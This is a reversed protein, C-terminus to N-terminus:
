AGPYPPVVIVIEGIDTVVSFREFDDFVNMAVDTINGTLIVGSELILEVIENDGLIDRIYLKTAAGIIIRYQDGDFAAIDDTAFNLTTFNEAGDWSEVLYGADGAVMINDQTLVKVQTLNVPSGPLNASLDALLISNNTLKGTWFISAEGSFYLRLRSEDYDVSLLRDTGTLLPDTLEVWTGARDSTLWIVPLGTTVTYGVALIDKGVEVFDVIVDDITLDVVWTTGGDVSKAIQAATAATPDAGVGYSLLQLAGSSFVKYAVDLLEGVDPLTVTNFRDDTLTVAPKAVADGGVAILDTGFTSDCGPCDTGIFAIANLVISAAETRVKSAVAKFQWRTEESDINTSHTIVARDGKAEVMNEVPILPDITGRSIIKVHSYIDDVACVYRLFFDKKCGVFESFRKMPNWLDSRLAVPYTRSLFIMPAVVRSITRLQGRIFSRVTDKLAEQSEQSETGIGHGDLDQIPNQSAGLDGQAQLIYDANSVGDEPGWTSPLSM